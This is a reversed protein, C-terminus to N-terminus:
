VADCARVAMRHMRALALAQLHSLGVDAEVAVFVDPKLCVLLGVVGYPFTLDGTGGTMVRMPGDSGLHEPSVRDVLEAILAMGLFPAREPELMRRDLRVAQVTMRHVSRVVVAKQHSLDRLKALAAMFADREGKMCATREGVSVAHFPLLRAVLHDGPAAQVAM